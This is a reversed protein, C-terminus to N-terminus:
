SSLQQYGVQPHDLAMFELFTKHTALLNNFSAAGFQQCLRKEISALDRLKPVGMGQILRDLYRKLEELM